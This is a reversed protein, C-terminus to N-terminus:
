CVWCDVCWLGKTSLESNHEVLTSSSSRLAENRGALSSTPTALPKGLVHAQPQLVSASVYVDGKGDRIFFFGGKWAWREITAADGLM